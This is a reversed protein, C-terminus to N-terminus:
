HLQLANGGGGVNGVRMFYGLRCDHFCYVCQAGRVDPIITSGDNSLM